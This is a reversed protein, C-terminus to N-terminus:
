IRRSSVSGAWCDADAIYKRLDDAGYYSATGSYRMGAKELVRWSGINGPETVAMVETLGAQSFGFALTARVAETAYGHGWHAPAFHYGLDIESGGDSTLWSLPRLGCQGVFEGTDALEVALVAYGLEAEMERRIALNARFTEPTRPRERSAPDLYRTVEPHTFMAIWDDVARGEFSRLVLRNTQLRIAM